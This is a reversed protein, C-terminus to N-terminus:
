FIKGSGFRCPFLNDFTNRQERVNRPLNGFLNTGVCFVFTINFPLLQVDFAALIQSFLYRVVNIVRSNRMLIQSRVNILSIYGDRELVLNGRDDTAPKYHVIVQFNRHTQRNMRLAAISITLEIQNDTFRVILPNQAAFTVEIDDGDSEFALAPQQFKEALMKKFDLVKGKKGELDLKGLFLNFLSEHIKLDAFADQPTKPAPTESGLTRPSHLKWSSLLWDQETQSDAKKIYLDFNNAIYQSFARYKENIPKLRENTESDVQRSVQRMIKRLSESRAGSYKSEYQNYVVSRFLKSVIPMGDFDTKVNSLKLRHSVIEVDCPHIELGNETLEIEKRALILTKGQNTLQTAFSDSKTLTLLEIGYDVSVSLRDKDPLFTMMIETETQRLGSVPQEQIVDRFRRTESEIPPLHSNIVANSVFIKLNPNGYQERVIEGLQAYQPTRAAAARLALRSFIKMDSMGGTLEYRELHQLLQKFDVTDATWHKLEEKWAAIVPENLYEAQVESLQPTNLRYLSMNAKDCLPVLVEVPISSDPLSVRRIPQQVVHQISELDTLFAQMEFYRCWDEAREKQAAGKQSLFYKQAAKTKDLLRAVDNADKGYHRVVSYPEIDQVQLTSNWVTLRRQIATAIEDLAVKSPVYRTDNEDADQSIDYQWAAKVQNWETLKKEIRQLIAKDATKGQNLSQVFLGIDRLFLDALPQLPKTEVAASQIIPRLQNDLAEPVIVADNACSQRLVLLM